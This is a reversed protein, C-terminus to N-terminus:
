SYRVDKHEPLYFDPLMRDVRVLGERTLRIIDGEIAVWGERIHRDLTEAFMELVNVGFRTRFYSVPVEGLKMQLIFERVVKERNSLSYARDAPLRGSSVRDIYRDVSTLNQCHMGDIYSFASAGIGVLDAGRYQADQYVFAHDPTLAATYASRLHYGQRELRRFGETLRERKVDWTILEDRTVTKDLAKYLPTNQPIELQYITVSDPKMTSVRDLSRYYSVETEGVLGVMLDLNVQDFGTARIADYAREIDSVQHIRGNAKLVADDLQQVGMSIRTIGADKLTRLGTETTSRPACEFTIERAKDWAYLSKIGSVLRQIQDDSLISPTGGGFYVYGLSRNMLRRSWRYLTLEKLLADIYADIRESPPHAQSLYYCYTCRTECFPIHVYLGLEASERPILDLRHEYGEANAHEWTSFPPYTSIFYSGVLSEGSQHATPESQKIQM